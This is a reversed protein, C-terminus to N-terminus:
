HIIRCKSHFELPSSRMSYDVMEPVIDIRSLLMEGDGTKKFSVLDRDVLDVSQPETDSENGTWVLAHFLM